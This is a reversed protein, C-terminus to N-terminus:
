FVAFDLPIKLVGHKFVFDVRCKNWSIIM